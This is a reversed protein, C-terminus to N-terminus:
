GVMERLKSAQDPPNDLADLFAKREGDTIPTFELEVDDDADSACSLAACLLFGLIFAISVSVWYFMMSGEGTAEAVAEAM